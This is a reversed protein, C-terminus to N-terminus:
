IQLIDSNFPMSKGVYRKRSRKKKEDPNKFWIYLDNRDIWEHGKSGYCRLPATQRLDNVNVMQEAATFRFDNHLYFQYELHSQHNLKLIRQLLFQLISLLDIGTGTRVSHDTDTKFMTVKMANDRCNIIMNWLYDVSLCVFGRRIFMLGDDGFEKLRQFRHICSAIMKDWVAQPIFPNDFKVCLTVTTVTYPDALVPSIVEPDATQLISPVIFYDVEADVSIPKTLLGLTEMISYLREEEDLFRYEVPREWLQRIFEHSLVGSKEYETWKLIQKTSLNSTFKPATIIAKFANIIWQPQLVIFPSKSLLDFCLFSGSFRLKMLFKMVENEALPVATKSNIELLDAYTLIIMGENKLKVLEYELAIWRAPVPKMWQSQLPAISLIKTWVREYTDQNKTSDNLDAIPFMEQVHTAMIERLEPKEYIKELVSAFMREQEEKHESVLDLYSGVIIVPPTGKGHAARDIAYTAINRLWFEIREYGDKARSPDLCMAVDFVLVFVMNSSMFCHHTNYFVKEGGFDYITVYDKVKGDHKDEKETVMVKEIVSKQEQTLEFHQPIEREKRKFPLKSFFQRMKQKAGTKKRVHVKVTAEPLAGTSPNVSTQVSSNKGDHHRDILRRLRQLGTEIEGTNDLKQRFGTDPNYAIVNVNFDATDTSGPGGESIFEKKLQRVFCSKGVGHHGVVTIITNCPNEVNDAIGSTYQQQQQRQQQIQQDNQQQRQQQRQQQIQQHRQQQQQQIQQQRQEIQAFIAYVGHSRPSKRRAIDIPRDGSSDDQQLLRPCKDATDLILQTWPCRCFAMWHLVNSGVEDVVSLEQVTMKKALFAAANEKDYRVAYMLPTRGDSDKAGIDAGSRVLEKVKDLDGSRVAYHLPTCVDMTRSTEEFPPSGGTAM